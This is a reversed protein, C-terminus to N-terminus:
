GAGYGRAMMVAMTAILVLLLTQIDSIRAIRRMTPRLGDLGPLTGRGQARRWRILTVMPWIELAFVVAFLGMKGYFAHSGWYYSSTKEVSGFLRWLGTSVLLLASVGWWNDATFGRTLQDHDRVDNFTRARAFVAGLAMAWAILHILALAIRLV